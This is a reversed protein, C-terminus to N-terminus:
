RPQNTADPPAPRLRPVREFLQEDRLLAREREDRSITFNKKGPCDALWLSIDGERGAAHVDCCLGPGLLTGILSFALAWSWDNPPQRGPVDDCRRM